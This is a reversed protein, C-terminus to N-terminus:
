AQVGEPVESPRAVSEVDIIAAGVTKRDKRARAAVNSRIRRTTADLGEENAAVEAAAVDTNLYMQADRLLTAILARLQKVALREKRVEDRRAKGEKTMAFLEPHPVGRKHVLPEPATKWALKGLVEQHAHVDEATERAMEMCMFARNNPTGGIMKGVDARTMTTLSVDIM